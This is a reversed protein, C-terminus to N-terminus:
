AQEASEANLKASGWAAAFFGIAFVAGVLLNSNVWGMHIALYLLVSLIGVVLMLRELHLGALCYGLGIVLLISRYEQTFVAIFIFAVMLGFHYLYKDGAKSGQQGLKKDSRMGIWASIVMGVPASVLWYMTSWSFQFEAIAYGIFVICGWLAYIAPYGNFSASDELVKKIYALNEDRHSM